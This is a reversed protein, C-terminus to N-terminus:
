SELSPSKLKPFDRDVNFSPIETEKEYDDELDSILDALHRAVKSALVKESTTSGSKPNIEETSM